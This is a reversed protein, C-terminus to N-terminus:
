SYRFNEESNDFKDSAVEEGQEEKAVAFTFREHIDLSIHHM